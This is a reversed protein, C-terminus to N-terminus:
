KKLREDDEKIKALIRAEEERAKNAQLILKERKDGLEKIEEQSWSARPQALKNSITKAEQEKKRARQLARRADRHRLIKSHISDPDRRAEAEQKQKAKRRSTRKSMKKVEPPSSGDM